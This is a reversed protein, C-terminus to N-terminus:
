RYCIKSELSWDWFSYCSFFMFMHECNFEWVNATTREPLLSKFSLQVFHQKKNVSTNVRTCVIEVYWSQM